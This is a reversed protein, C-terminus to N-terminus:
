RCLFFNKLDILQSRLDKSIINPALTRRVNDNAQFKNIVFSTDYIEQFLNLMEFKSYIEDTGINIVEGSHKKHMGSEIINEVQKCWELTTIGNWYHNIYGNLISYPENNLFWGLLGKPERSILDPGIISVRVCLANTRDEIAKEGYFKSLGYDDQADITSNIDYSGRIRKGSYVCDTSPQILFQSDLINSVLDLPLLTNTVLLDSFVNSKQKILGICNIIVGGGLSTLEKLYENRNSLNYRKDFIVINHNQGFYLKVMQGLM